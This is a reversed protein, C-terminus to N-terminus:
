RTAAELAPEGQHGGSPSMPGASSGNGTAGSDIQAPEAIGAPPLGVPYLQRAREIVAIAIATLWRATSASWEQAGSTKPAGHLPRGSVALLTATPIRYRFGNAAM